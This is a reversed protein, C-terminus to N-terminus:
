LRSIKLPNTSTFNWLINPLRELNKRMSLYWTGTFAELKEMFVNKYRCKRKIVYDMSTVFKKNCSKCLYRRLYIKQPGYEGIIKTRERYKQKNVNKSECYPFIAKVYEFHNDVPLNLSNNVNRPIETGQFREALAKEFKPEDVGSDSLKLQISGTCYKLTLIIQNIM